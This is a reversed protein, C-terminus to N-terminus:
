FRGHKKWFSRVAESIPSVPLEEFLQEFTVWRLVLAEARKKWDLTCPGLERELASLDDYYEAFKYQYLRSKPDADKFVKPTVLTVFVRQPYAGDAQFCLANEVVRALQNRHPDHTVSCSIDSMWKAECFCVWSGEQAAFEIGSVTGARIAIAGLALDINTNGECKRPPLPLVELYAKSKVPQPLEQGTLTVSLAHIGEDGIIVYGCAVLFTWVQEDRVSDPKQEYKDVKAVLKDWHVKGLYASARIPQVHEQLLTALYTM